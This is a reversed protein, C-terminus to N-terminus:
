AETMFRRLQKIRRQWNEICQFILVKKTPSFLVLKVEPGVGDSTLKTKMLNDVSNDVAETSQGPARELALEGAKPLDKGSFFLSYLPAGEGGGATGM